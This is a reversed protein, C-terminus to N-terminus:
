CLVEAAQRVAAADLRHRAAAAGRSGRRCSRASASTRRWRPWSRRRARRGERHRVLAEAGAKELEAVDTEVVAREGASRDRLLTRRPTGRARARRREPHMLTHEVARLVAADADAM